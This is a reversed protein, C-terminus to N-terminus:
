EFGDSNVMSVIRADAGTRRLLSSGLETNGWASGRSHHTISVPLRSPRGGRRDRGREHGVNPGPRTSHRAGPILIRARREPLGAPVCWTRRQHACGPTCVVVLHPTRERAWSRATRRCEIGILSHGGLTALRIPSFCEGADRSVVPSAICVVSSPVFPQNSAQHGSSPPLRPM